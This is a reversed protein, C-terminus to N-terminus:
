PDARPVCNCTIYRKGQRLHQKFTKHGAESVEGESRTKMESEVRKHHKGEGKKINNERERRRIKLKQSSSTKAHWQRQSQAEFKLCHGRAGFGGSTLDQVRELCEQKDRLLIKKKREREM